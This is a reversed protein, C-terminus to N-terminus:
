WPGLSEYDGDRIEKECAKCVPGYDEYIGLWDDINLITPEEDTFLRGCDICKFGTQNDTM